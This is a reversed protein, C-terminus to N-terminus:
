IKGHLSTIHIIYSISSIYSSQSTSGTFKHRSELIKGNIAQLSKYNATGPDSCFMLLSISKLYAVKIKPLQLM